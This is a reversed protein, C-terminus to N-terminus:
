RKKPQKNPGGLQLQAASLGGQLLFGLGRLGKLGNVRLAKFRPCGWGM